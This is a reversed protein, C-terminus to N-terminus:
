AAPATTDPEVGKLTTSNPSIVGFYSNGANVNIEVGNLDTVTIPASETPKSWKIQAVTGNSIYYGTGGKWDVEMIKMGQYSGVSTELVFVNTYALQEGTSSDKHAKGSHQKLYKGTAEDYTFTSYYSNSFKLVAETCSTSSVAAPAGEPNFNFIPESKDQAIDSRVSEKALISPIDAGKLYATHESSYGASARKSDRAYLASYFQGDFYDIGIRQLTPTGLTPNSGYCCYVADFGHAFIPFYYRCSRVSCVNPIQTYDGYIAMMRTIGGEVVVEFMIDACAIGYQPLAAKINNIMVAVPRKGYAGESLDAVGTLLNINAPPPAETTPEATTIEAEETTTVDEGNGGCATLCLCLMLVSLICAIIRKM